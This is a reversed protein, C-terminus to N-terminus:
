LPIDHTNLYGTLYNTINMDPHFCRSSKIQQRLSAVLDAGIIYYTKNDIIVILSHRHDRYGRFFQSFVSRTTVLVNGNIYARASPSFAKPFEYEFTRSSIRATLGLKKLRENALERYSVIPGFENGIGQSPPSNSWYQTDQFIDKLALTQTPICHTFVEERNNIWSVTLLLYGIVTFRLCRWPHTKLHEFLVVPHFPHHQFSKM